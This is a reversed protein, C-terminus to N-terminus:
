KLPVYHLWAAVSMPNPAEQLPPHALNVPIIGQVKGRGENLGVFSHKDNLFEWLALARM